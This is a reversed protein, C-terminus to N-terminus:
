NRDKLIYHERGNSFVVHKANDSIKCTMSIGWETCLISRIKEPNNDDNIEFIGIIKRGTEWGCAITCKFKNKGQNRSDLVADLIQDYLEPMTYTFVKQNAGYYLNLIRIQTRSM